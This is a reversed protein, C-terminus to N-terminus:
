GHASSQRSRVEHAHTALAGITELDVVDDLDLEIQLLDELGVVIHMLTGSDIGLQALSADPEIDAIPRDFIGALEARIWRVTEQVDDATVIVFGDRKGTTARGM